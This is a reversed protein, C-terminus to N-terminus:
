SYFITLNFGIINFIEFIIEHERIKYKKYKKKSPSQVPTSHGLMGSAPMLEGPACTLLLPLSGWTPSPIGDIYALRHICTCISKCLCTHTYKYVLRQM